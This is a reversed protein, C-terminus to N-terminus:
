LIITDGEVGAIIPLIMTYTNINDDNKEFRASYINKLNPIKQVEELIKSNTAEPNDGQKAIASTDIEPLKINDIKKKIDAVGEDVKTEVPTLDINEVSSKIDAIGQVLSSEKAVPDIILTDALVDYSEQLTRLKEIQEQTLRM